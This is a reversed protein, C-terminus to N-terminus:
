WDTKPQLTHSLPPFVHLEELLSVVATLLWSQLLFPLAPGRTMCAPGLLM